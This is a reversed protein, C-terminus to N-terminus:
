SDALNSDQIFCKLTESIFCCYIKFSISMLPIVKNLGPIMERICRVLFYQTFKTHAIQKQFYNDKTFNYRIMQSNIGQLARKTKTALFVQKTLM